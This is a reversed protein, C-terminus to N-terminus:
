FFFLTFIAFVNILKKKRKGQNTISVIYRITQGAATAVETDTSKSVDFMAVGQVNVSATATVAATRSTTATAVNVLPTGRGIDAQTTLYTGTCRTSSGVVLTQGIATPACSLGSVRPDVISLNPLDILGINNAIITYRSFLALHAM